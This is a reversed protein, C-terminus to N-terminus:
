NRSQMQVCEHFVFARIASWPACMWGVCVCVWVHAGVVPMTWLCFLLKRDFKSPGIRKVLWKTIRISYTITTRVTYVFLLCTCVVAGNSTTLNQDAIKTIALRLTGSESASRLGAIRSETTSKSQKSHTEISIFLRAGFLLQANSKPCAAIRSHCRSLAATRPANYM